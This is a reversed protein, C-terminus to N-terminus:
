RFVFSSIQTSKLDARSSVTALYGGTDCRIIAKRDPVVEGTGTIVLQEPRAEYFLHEIEEYSANTPFQTGLGHWPVQGVYMMRNVEHPM